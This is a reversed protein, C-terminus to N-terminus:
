LTYLIPSSYTFDQNHGSIQGESVDMGERDIFAGTVTAHERLRSVILGSTPDVFDKVKKFIVIDVGNEQLLINDVFAQTSSARRKIGEPIGTEDFKIEYFEATMTGNWELAPLEQPTLEGLGSVRGRRFTESIRINKMKGVTIGNVKILALPATLVKEAM